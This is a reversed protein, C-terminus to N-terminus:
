DLFRGSCQEPGSHRRDRAADQPQLPHAAVRPQRDGLRRKRARLRRPHGHAQRVGRPRRHRLLGQLAARRRRARPVGQPLRGARGSASAMGTHVHALHVRAASVPRSRTGAQGPDAIELDWQHLTMARGPVGLEPPASSPRTSSPLSLGHPSGGPSTQPGGPRPGPRPRVPRDVAGLDRQHAGPQPLPAERTGAVGHHRALRGRARRPAQLGVPPGHGHARLAREADSRM